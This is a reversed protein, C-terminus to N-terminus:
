PLAVGAEGLFNNGRSVTLRTALLAPLLQSKPELPMEHLGSPAHVVCWVALSLECRSGDIWKKIKKKRSSNRDWGRAVRHPPHADGLHHFQTIEMCPHGDGIVM